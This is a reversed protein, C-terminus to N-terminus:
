SILVIGFWSVIKSKIGGIGVLFSTIILFDIGSEIISSKM